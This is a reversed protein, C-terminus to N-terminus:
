LMGYVLGDDGNGGLAPQMSKGPQQLSASNKRRKMDDADNWRPLLNIPTTTAVSPSDGTLLSVDTQDDDDSWKISGLQYLSSDHNGKSVSLHAYLNQQEVLSPLNHQTHSGDYKEPSAAVVEQVRYSEAYSDQALSHEGEVEIVTSEDEIISSSSAEEETVDVESSHYSESQSSSGESFSVEEDRIIEDEYSSGGSHDMTDETMDHGRPNEVLLADETSYSSSQSQSSNDSM